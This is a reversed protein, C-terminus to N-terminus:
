ILPGGALAQWLTGASLLLYILAFFSVPAIKDKSFFWAFLPIIQIAHLGLFHSVRLDGYKRAWNLLFLGEEGDAAGVTHGGNAIMLYGELSAFLVIILGFRIGWLYGQPLEQKKMFLILTWLIMFTNIIIALGMIGFLVGDFLSSENFHSAQGLAAQGVIIVQEIGLMAVITIAIINVQSKEPLYDLIWAMTWCFIGISVAFKMPKIWVNIGLFTRDDIMSFLLLLGFLLFNAMGFFTLLRNRNYLEGLFDNVANKKITLM